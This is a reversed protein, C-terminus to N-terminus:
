AARHYPRLLGGLREECLHGVESLTPRTFPQFSYLFERCTEEQDNGGCHQGETASFPTGDSGVEPGVLNAAPPCWIPLPGGRRLCSTPRICDDGEARSRKCQRYHTGDRHCNACVVECKVIEALLKRISTARNAIQSVREIKEGRVHDFDMQWPAYQIGCDACPRAKAAEAIAQIRAERERM